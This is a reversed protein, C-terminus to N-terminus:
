PVVSSKPMLTLLCNIPQRHMFIEAVFGHWVDGTKEPLVIEAWPEETDRHFICLIVAKADPAYIAFNCGHDVLTAGLPYAEGVSVQFDKVAALVADM